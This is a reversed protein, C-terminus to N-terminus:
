PPVFVQGNVAQAKGEALPVSRLGVDVAASAEEPVDLGWVDCCSNGGVRAFMELGKQNPFM